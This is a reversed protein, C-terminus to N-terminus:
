YKKISDNGAKLVGKKNNKRFIFDGLTLEHELSVQM